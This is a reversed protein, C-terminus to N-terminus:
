ALRAYVEALKGAIAQPGATRRAADLARQAEAADGRVRAAARGLAEANAEPILTAGDELDRLAGKATAVTPLGAAMSEIAALGFTEHARTPALGVGARRRLEPLDDVHGLFTTDTGAARRELAAREPGDGAILLPVGARHCGDIALDVGKEVALRSTVLAPGDPNVVPTDAFHRTLHPVVHVGHDPLPADLQRLREHAAHSPVVIADAARTLARQHLSLAAAYTAAEARHTRRCNKRVGPVTNRGQCQTCDRDHADFCTGVACVLRYNHLHLVVKAGADRAAHLAKPGFSPNLNHAHVIRAGTRRVADHVERPDLGGTLLGRAADKARLDKSDRELLEAPRGLREQVLWVLDHVAREEGGTTRYRNHLFLIM